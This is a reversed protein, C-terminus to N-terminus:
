FAWSRSRSFRVQWRRKERYHLANRRASRFLQCRRARRQRWFGQLCTRLRYVAPRIKRLTRGNKQLYGFNPLFTASESQKSEILGKWLVPRAFTLNFPELERARRWEEPTNINLFWERAQLGSDKAAAAAAFSEADFFKVRSAAAGFTQVRHRQRGSDRVLPRSATWRRWRMGCQWCLRTSGKWSRAGCARPWHAIISAASRSRCASRSAPSHLVNGRRRTAAKLMGRSPMCCHLRCSRCISQWSFIGRRGRKRLHRWSEAWRVQAPFLMAFGHMTPLFVPTGGCITAITWMGPRNRLGTSSARRRARATDAGEM